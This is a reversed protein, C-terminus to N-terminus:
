GQGAHIWPLWGLQRVKITQIAAPGRSQRIHEIASAAPLNEYLMMALLTLVVCSRGYGDICSSHLPLSPPMLTYM